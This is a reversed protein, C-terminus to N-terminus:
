VGAVRVGPAPTTATAPEGDFLEYLEYEEEDGCSYEEDGTCPKECYDAVKPSDVFSPDFGCACKDGGSLVFYLASVEACTEFCSQWT